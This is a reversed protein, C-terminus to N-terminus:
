LSLMSWSSRPAMGNSGVAFPLGSLNRGKEETQEAVIDDNDEKSDGEDEKGSEGRGRGKGM